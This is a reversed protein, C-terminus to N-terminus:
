QDNDKLTKPHLMSVSDTPMLKQLCLCDKIKKIFKFNPTRTLFHNINDSIKCIKLVYNM